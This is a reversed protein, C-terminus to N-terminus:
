SNEDVLPAGSLASDTQACLLQNRAEDWGQMAAGDPCCVHVSHQQGRYSFSAQTSRDVAASGIQPARMCLFKNRTADVGRMFISDACSHMNNARTCDDELDHSIPVGLLPFIERQL